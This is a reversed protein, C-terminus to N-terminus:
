SEFYALHRVSKFPRKHGSNPKFFNCINGNKKKNNTNTDNQKSDTDMESNDKLM